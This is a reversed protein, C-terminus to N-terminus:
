SKARCTKKGGVPESALTLRSANLSTFTSSVRVFDAVTDQSTVDSGYKKGQGWLPDLVDLISGTIALYIHRLKRYSVKTFISEVTKSLSSEGLCDRCQM